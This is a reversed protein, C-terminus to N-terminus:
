HITNYLDSEYDSGSVNTSQMVNACQDWIFAFAKHLNDQYARRKTMLQDLEAKHKLKFQENQFEIKDQM